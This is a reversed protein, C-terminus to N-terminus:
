TYKEVMGKINDFLITNMEELASIYKLARSIAIRLPLKKTNEAVPIIPRNAYKAMKLEDQVPQSKWAAESYFLVVINCWQISDEMFDLFDEGAHMSEEWYRVELNPHLQELQSALKKIQFFESDVQTYSFFVRYRIPTKARTLPIGTYSDSLDVLSDFNNHLFQISDWPLKEGVVNRIIEESNLHDDRFIKQFSKIANSRSLLHSLYTLKVFSTLRETPLDIMLKIANRWPRVRNKYKTLGLRLAEDVVIGLTINSKLLPLIYTMVKLIKKRVNLDLDLLFPLVDSWYNKAWIDEWYNVEKGDYKIDLNSLAHAFDQVTGRETIESIIMCEEYIQTFIEDPQKLLFEKVANWTKVDSSNHDIKNRNLIGTFTPLTIVFANRIEEIKEERDM